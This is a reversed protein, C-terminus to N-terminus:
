YPILANRQGFPNARCCRPRQRRSTLYTVPQNIFAFLASAGSLEFAASVRFHTAM